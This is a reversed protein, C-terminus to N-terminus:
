LCYIDFYPGFTLLLRLNRTFVGVHSANLGYDLTGPFDIAYQATPMNEPYDLECCHVRSYLFPMFLLADVESHVHLLFSGLVLKWTASILRKSFINVKEKSAGPAEADDHEMAIPGM